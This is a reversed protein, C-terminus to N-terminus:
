CEYKPQWSAEDIINEGKEDLTGLLTFMTTRLAAIRKEKGSLRDKLTANTFLSHRRMPATCIKRRTTKQEEAQEAIKVIAYIPKARETDNMTQNLKCTRNMRQHGTSRARSEKQWGRKLRPVLSQGILNANVIRASDPQPRRVSMARVSFTGDRQKQMIMETNAKLQTLFSKLALSPPTRSPPQLIRKTLDQDPVYHSFHLGILHLKNNNSPTQQIPLFAGRLLQNGKENNTKSIATSNAITCRRYRFNKLRQREVHQKNVLEQRPSVPCTGVGTTVTRKRTTFPFNDEDM